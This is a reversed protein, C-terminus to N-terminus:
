FVETPFVGATPSSPTVPNVSGPHGRSISKLKEIIKYKKHVTAKGTFNTSCSYSTQKIYYMM